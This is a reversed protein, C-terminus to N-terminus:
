AKKGAREDLLKIRKHCFYVTWIGDEGTPRVAVPLGRFARGVNFQRGRFNLVGGAQVKRVQDGPGYEIAALVEPYPRGSARYRTAPVAMELAEHPREMNYLDRWQDFRDQCHDHDRFSEYLVEAKLTRHFREDKGQTQPHRVRGHLVDIGLRLLWLEFRTWYREGKPAQMPTGWPNGNDCLLTLPLGYRRFVGILHEQTSEATENKCAALCLAFRSHDDLVTLPYCRQGNLLVVYGKFDMQWLENPRAREFRQWAHHKSSEQLAIMNNRRLIRQCTSVAPIEHLPAQGTHQILWHRIKRAGWVPHKRRVTLIAEEIHQPTQYPSQHPRPSRQSLGDPGERDFRRIWKYATKRSIAYRRCLQSINADPQTALMVFERILSMQSQEKWPM